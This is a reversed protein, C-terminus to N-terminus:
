NHQRIINLMRKIDKQKSEPFPLSKLQFKSNLPCNQILYSNFIVLSLPKTVLLTMYVKMSDVFYIHLDEDKIQKRSCTVIQLERTGGFLNEGWKINAYCQEPTQPNNISHSTSDKLCTHKNSSFTHPFFAECIM